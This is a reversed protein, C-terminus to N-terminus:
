QLSWNRYVTNMRSSINAIIVFKLMVAVTGPAEQSSYGTWYSFYTVDRVSCEVAEKAGTWEARPDALM